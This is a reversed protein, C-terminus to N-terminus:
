TKESFESTTAGYLHGNAKELRVIVKEWYAMESNEQAEKEFRTKLAFGKM